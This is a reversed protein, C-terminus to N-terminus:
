TSPTGKSFRDLLFQEETSTITQVKAHSHRYLSKALTALPHNDPDDRFPALDANGLPHLVEEDGRRLILRRRGDETITSRVLNGVWALGEGGM